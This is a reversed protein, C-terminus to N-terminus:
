LGGFLFAYSTSIQKFIRYQQIQHDLIKKEQSKYPIGQSSDSFGQKRVSSYRTAITAARSLQGGAGQMMNGRAIMMTIYHTRPNQKKDSKIYKGDSTVYQYRALMRDKPIRVNDLRM